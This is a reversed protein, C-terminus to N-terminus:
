ICCAENGCGDMVMNLKPNLPNKYFELRAKEYPEVAEKAGAKDELLIRRDM